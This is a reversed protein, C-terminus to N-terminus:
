MSLALFRRWALLSSSTASASATAAPARQLEDDEPRALEGDRDQGRDRFGVLDDGDDRLRIARGAAAVLQDGRRDLARGLRATQARQRGLLELREDGFRAREARVREDDRRVALDHRL